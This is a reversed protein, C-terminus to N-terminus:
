KLEIEQGQLDKVIQMRRGMEDLRSLTDKIVRSLEKKTIVKNTPLAISVFREGHVVNDDSMKVTVEANVISYKFGVIQVKM